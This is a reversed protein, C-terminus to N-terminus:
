ENYECRNQQFTFILALLSETLDLNYVIELQM